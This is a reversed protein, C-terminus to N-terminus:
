AAAPYEVRLTEIPAPRGLLYGQVKAFGIEELARLEAVTEVGEGIIACGVSRAFDALATALARRAPDSEISHVFFRDLKIIDPRLHLIHQLSAHLRSTGRTQGSAM